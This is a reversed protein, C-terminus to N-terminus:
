KVGAISKLEAKIARATEGRWYSLNSLLYLVVSRGSDYYYNDDISDLSLMADVYPKAYAWWNPAGTPYQREMAGYIERAITSLPRTTETKM